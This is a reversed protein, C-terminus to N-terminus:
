ISAAGFLWPPELGSSFPNEIDCMGFFGYPCFSVEIRLTSEWKTEIM